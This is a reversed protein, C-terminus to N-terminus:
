DLCPKISRRQVNRAKTERTKCKATVEPRPACNNLCGAATVTATGLTTAAGPPALSNVAMVVDMGVVVEGFVTYDGNLHPAPSVVISFHGSNTNPGSNAASLLGARDHLLKLGGPDDDFSTDWISNVSHVGAQDIFQDLIRYFRMGKFTYAGGKEGTCMARFNEAHRPSEHAYLVFEVRGGTPQPEGDAPPQSWTISIDLFVRPNGARERREIIVREAEEDAKRIAAAEQASFVGGSTWPCKDGKARVAPRLETPHARGKGWCEGSKQTGCGGPLGCFVWYVCGGSGEHTSRHHRCSSCCASASSQINDPGWLVVPGDYETHPAIYCQDPEVESTIAPPPQPPSPQPPAPLPLPPPPSAAEGVALEQPTFEITEASRSRVSMVLMSVNVGVAVSALACLMRSRTGMGM